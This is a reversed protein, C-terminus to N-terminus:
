GRGARCWRYLPCPRCHPLRRHGPCDGLIGLHSLAFDFRLPDAADMRRLAATIDEAMAGDPTVRRTLGVFRSVRAVHTDVPIILQDLPYRRWQGLDPWGRRAMWRLFLRWRKCAGGESPDPLSFRLGYTSPLDRRLRRVVRSLAEDAGTEGVAPLFHSELGGEADLRKWALIWHALDEGTHFRWAWGRLTSALTDLLEGEPRRRVEGAPHAGLPALANRIAKLMPAVRGYALTAGVWAALERDDAEAYELAVRLPDLALAHESEYRRALEDLGSAFALSPRRAESRTSAM